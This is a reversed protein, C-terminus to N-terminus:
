LAEIEDQYHEKLYGIEENLSDIKMKQLNEQHNQNSQSNM